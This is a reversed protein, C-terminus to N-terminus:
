ARTHMERKWAFKEISRWRDKFRVNWKILIARIIRCHGQYKTSHAFM